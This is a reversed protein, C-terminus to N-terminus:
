TPVQEGDVFSRFVLSLEDPDSVFHADDLEVYHLLPSNWSEIDRYGMDWGPFIRQTVESKSLVVIGSHRPDKKIREITETVAAVEGELAQAFYRGKAVLLGTIGKMRNNRRSAVLIQEHDARTLGNAATSIYFLRILM